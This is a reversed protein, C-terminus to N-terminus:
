VTWHNFQGTDVSRVLERLRRAGGRMIPDGHGVGLYEVDFETLHHLAEHNQRFNLMFCPWGPGFVPYTVLADGAFLAKREPWYFALHGPTHGPTHIVRLPGITDGDRLLSDPPCSAFRSFRAAVQFPWIRLPRMPTLPTCQIKREGAVIDAEWEHCYIAAGSLQKLRALGGLHARHAHTLVIRRIDTPRKGLRSLRDVILQANASSLTDILTLGDGDDLLFAHVFIGKREMVPYIGLVGNESM